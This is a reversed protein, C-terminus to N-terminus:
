LNFILDDVNSITTYYENAIEKSEEYGWYCDFTIGNLNYGVLLFEDTGNLINTFNFFELFFLDKGEITGNRINVMAEECGTRNGGYTIGTSNLFGKTMNWLVGPELQEGFTHNEPKKLSLYENIKIKKDIQNKM